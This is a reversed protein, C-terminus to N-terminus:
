VEGERVFVGAGRELNFALHDTLRHVLQTATQLSCEGAVAAGTMTEHEIDVPEGEEVGSADREKAFQRCAVHRKRIAGHEDGFLEFLDAIIAPLVRLSELATGDSAIKAPFSVREVLSHRHVLGGQDSCQSGAM